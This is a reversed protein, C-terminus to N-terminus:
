ILEGRLRTYQNEDIGGSEFMQLLFEEREDRSLLRMKEKLEKRLERGDDDVADVQLHAFDDMTEGIDAGSLGAALLSLSHRLALEKQHVQDALMWTSAKDPPMQRIREYELRRYRLFERVREKVAKIDIRNYEMFMEASSEGLNDNGWRQYFEDLEELENVADEFDELEDDPKDVTDNNSEETDYGESEDSSSESFEDSNESGGGNGEASDLDAGLDQEDSDTDEDPWRSGEINSEGLM